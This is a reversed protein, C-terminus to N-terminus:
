GGGAERGKAGPAERLLGTRFTLAPLSTERAEMDRLRFMMREPAHSFLTSLKQEPPPERLRPLPREALAFSMLLGASVPLMLSAAGLARAGRLPLAPAGAALATLAAAFLLREGPNVMGALAPPMALFMAAMVGAALAAPRLEARRRAALLLWAFLAGAVGAWALNAAAGAWFVAPLRDFDTGEDLLLNRYPGLKAATYVKYAALWAAEALPGGGARAGEEAPGGEAGLRGAAEAALYWGFLAWGPSLAFVHRIRLPGFLWWAGVLVTLVGLAVGHALFAAVSAAAMWGARFPEGRELRPILLVVGLIGLVFALYGNFFASGLGLSLAALGVPGARGPGARRGAAAALAAALGLAATALLRAALVPAGALAGLTLGTQTLSNPVPWSKFAVEQAAEGRILRAGLEGQWIWEPLDQLPPAPAAWIAVLVMLASAAAAGRCVHDFPDSRRATGAM